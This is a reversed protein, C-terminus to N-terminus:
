NMAPLLRSAVPDHFRVVRQPDGESEIDLAAVLGDDGEELLLNKPHPIRHVHHTGGQITFHLEIGSKDYSIGRLPQDEVEMQAGLDSSLVELTAHKGDYTRSLSDLVSKWKAPSITHTQM